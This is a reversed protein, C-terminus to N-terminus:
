FMFLEVDSGFNSWLQFEWSSWKFKIRSDVWILLTSSSEFKFRTMCKISAIPNMVNSYMFFEINSSSRLLQDRIHM